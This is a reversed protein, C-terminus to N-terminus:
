LVPPFCHISCEAEGARLGTRRNPVHVRIITKSAYLYVRARASLTFTSLAGSLDELHRQPGKSRVRWRGWVGSRFRLSVSEVDM